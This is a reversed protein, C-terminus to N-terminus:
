TTPEGTGAAWSVTATRPSATRSRAIVTGARASLGVGSALRAHDPGAQRLQDPATRAMGTAPIPTTHPNQPLERIGDGLRSAKLPGGAADAAEELVRGGGDPVIRALSGM